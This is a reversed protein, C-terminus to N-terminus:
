FKGDKIWNNLHKVIKKLQKLDIHMRKDDIGFWIASTGPPEFEALSSQQLSCNEGNKDIFHIIQFGRNTKEIKM